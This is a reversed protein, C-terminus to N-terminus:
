APIALLNMILSVMKETRVADSEAALLALAALGIDREALKM